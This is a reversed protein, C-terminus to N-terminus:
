QIKYIYQFHSFEDPKFADPFLYGRATTNGKYNGDAIFIYNEYEPLLSVNYFNVGYYDTGLSFDSTDGSNMNNNQIRNMNKNLKTIKFEKENNNSLIYEQTRPFYEVLLCSSYNGRLTM